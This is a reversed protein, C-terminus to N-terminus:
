VSETAGGGGYGGLMRISHLLSPTHTISLCAGCGGVGLEDGGGM